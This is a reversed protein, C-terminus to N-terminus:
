EEVIGLQYSLLQSDKNFFLTHYLKGNEYNLMVQAVVYEEGTDENTQGQMQSEEADKYAGVNDLAEGFREQFFEVSLEAQKEPAFLPILKEFEQDNLYGIAENGRKTIEGDDFGDPLTSLCGALLLVSLCAVLIPALLKKRM